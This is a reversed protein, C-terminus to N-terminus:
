EGYGLLGQPRVVLIVIVLIFGIMEVPKGVLQFGFSEIFGLILGALIVGVISGMGGLQCIIISKILAGSGIYPDVFFLPALMVGAAAALASGLGFTLHCIREINVGMLVAAQRDDALARIARGWKTKSFFIIVGVILLASAAITVIRQASIRAGFVGTIGVIPEMVAQPKEGFILVTISSILLLLGLSVIASPIFKGRVPKFLFKDLGVGFLFMIIATIILAAFYNMGLMGYFVIAGFGGLMYLEGYAFNFIRAMGFMITFGLAVLVYISSLTLANFVLQM